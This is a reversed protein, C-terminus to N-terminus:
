YSSYTAHTVTRAPIGYTVSSVIKIPYGITDSDGGCGYPASAVVSQSVPQPLEPVNSSNDILTMPQAVGANYVCSFWSPAKGNAFTRLNNYALADAKYFYLNANNLRAHMTLLQVISLVFLTGILITVLAEVITFGGKHAKM